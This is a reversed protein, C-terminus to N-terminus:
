ARVMREIVCEHKRKGAPADKDYNIGVLLVDGGHGKVADPYHKEKIQAIAGEVSKNWKMEIVLAPLMSDKKPLYVIDAYGDGAPLEEFKLYHDKYSFYALKIVSRLAQEDNYFLAATEEAHIKEIQAAVAEANGHVTDYILRDSERVRRITEDRKVERITRAFERRLEENPIHVTQTEEDYALYGLHILLTLVDDRNRFTVLDNAFGKTDVKISIGGILEAVTKSLGDFDLSIYGMLSVAASTETWYSDFDDNRIAKMVSNPNYVSDVGRFAYGDYWQKMKTFDVSYDRCLDRVEAETFGVYPGFKRPKIMSFEEFDSIASQSGDKKIPLIGTMYAAAFIKDTTGSSKFLTRLFELYEKQIDPIERIPADWEDIIAIFKNGTLEVANILTTSISEKDVKLGPYANVLEESVKRKIYSIIEKKGAEGIINTMDLYIVDYKNLYELYQKDEAIILDDFLHSSDCTKDYYACLMKAAFSKGFRRPRSICTLCRPTDITQNILGILGSKDVYVDNRIRTFGSNGPNLYNGM